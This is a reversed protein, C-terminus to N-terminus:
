ITLRLQKFYLLLYFFSVQALESELRARAKRLAASTANQEAAAGAAAAQEADLTARLVALQSEHQADRAEAAASSAGLERQLDSLRADTDAARKADAASSSKLERQAAAATAEYHAVQSAFIYLPLSEFRSCSGCSTYRYISYM